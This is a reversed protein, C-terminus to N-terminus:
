RTLRHDRGPDPQGGRGTVDIADIDIVVHHRCERGASPNVIQYTIFSLEIAGLLNVLQRSDNVIQTDIDKTEANKGIESSFEEGPGPTQHLQTVTEVFRGDHRQAPTAPWCGVIGTDDVPDHGGLTVLDDDTVGVGTVLHVVLHQAAAM